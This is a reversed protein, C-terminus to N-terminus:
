GLPHQHRQPDLEVGWPGTKKLCRRTPLPLVCKLMRFNRVIRPSVGARRAWAGKSLIRVAVDGPAASEQALRAQVLQRLDVVDQGPLHADDARARCQVVLVVQDLRAVLDAGVVHARAQGTKACTLPRSSSGMSTLPGSRRHTRRGHSRRAPHSLDEEAADGVHELPAANDLAAGTGHVLCFLFFGDFHRVSYGGPLCLPLYMKQASKFFTCSFRAIKTFIHQLLWAPNHLIYM